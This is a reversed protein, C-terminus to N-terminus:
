KNARNEVLDDVVSPDALTSTDGLADTENCAVKRLIRRMIKGSRTKPLGPAWQIINIKAIPGIEDRVLKVLEAKLEDTPEVGAMPTVYAYIGQGTIEHPYGVVAAEAVKEHLVLASEIEATGLRHGSVNLVDDIRGTIWYYGDADRRAGDGTFYTGPYQSFYTDKFRKHDGYVTRMQAPWPRTIVLAGECEGELVEGTSADVIEPVVGFFPKSASGPKMDTAGPLPTILHGGTETQWWTDVIPCREGGVVRYYWEWAEPNIPEGVSGLLRLSSLDHKKVPDEGVRMLARIATPATYFINVKHKECVAWFRGADPYTPIGEFMLSIAGNALPGYVIYTHGTVWGVDATCWYIEGDHYDFTYKHTMAAFVLYGGTTHLVGKPQGTSGSTYLIFLPDEADMAEPECEAAANAMAEDYYIDRGETWAVNGGTRRVVVCTHVNPCEKLAIDANAKLPVNKGGRVSEDSTILTQCDSDKIRSSLADPSFGGFVISHVAGIRTCALMAVAAEPVMPLYICVRDGKKVGRDKLVNAFKCVEAHLERYSIKKDLNPDDSEWIIATQDGRTELHRDLCNYSVNLKGGLFWKIDATHYDWETVKDWKKSWTIFEEAADGWFGDPDDVSRKYMEDYKAADIHANAAVEAPVPHVKEESM